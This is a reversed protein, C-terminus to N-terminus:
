NTLGHRHANEIDALARTVGEGESLTIKRSTFGHLRVTVVYLPLGAANVGVRDTQIV